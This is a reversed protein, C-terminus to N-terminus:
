TIYCYVIHRHTGEAQAQKHPCLASPYAHPVKLKIDNQEILNFSPQLPCVPAGMEFIDESVFRVHLKM